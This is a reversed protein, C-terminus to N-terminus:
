FNCGISLNIFNFQAGDPNEIQFAQTLEYELRIYGRLNPNFLRSYSCAINGKVRNATLYEYERLLNYDSSVPERTSDSPKAFQGDEKMKGGGAGYSLQLAIGYQNKHSTIRKDASLYADWWFINQKRFYPYLSVTQQRNAFNGGAKLVWAPCYDQTNLQAIYELRAKLHTKDLVKTNGYYVIETTGGPSNERRYVNEYNILDENSFNLNLFHQNPKGAFSLNGSYAMTKGNHEAYVVRGSSRSGFQGNRLLYSFENIFHWEPSLKLNVQLAAGNFMHVVADPNTGNTYGSVGFQETFGYFAGYDILSTYIRDTAGYRGFQLSEVSRRYIYNAGVEISNTAQWAVGVTATLDLLRNKHRLDKQKAYNATLYDVKGGVSLRPLLRAGVAGILHYQELNKRGQNASTPEVIDLAIFDPFVFPSGSMNQGTFNRYDMKGYFVVRKNMRFFSESQAGLTFSNNSQYYNVFEGNGKNAFIEAFSIKQVSDPLWTLGSANNGSLRAESRGVCDFDRWSGSLEQAAAGAPYLIGGLLLMLGIMRTTKKAM